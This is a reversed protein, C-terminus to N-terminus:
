RVKVELHDNVKTVGDTERALAVARDHEAVSGTTGNLTVTTGDTSVDIRRAKVLDDLAMKAKIKTTITADHTADRVKEAAAATKEGLDAGVERAKEQAIAGTTGATSSSFGGPRSGSGNPWYTLVAFAVLALVALVLIFRIMTRM